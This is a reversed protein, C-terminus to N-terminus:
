APGATMRGLYEGDRFAWAAWYGAAGDSGQLFIWLRRGDPSLLVQVYPRPHIQGSVMCGCCCMQMQYLDNWATDPVAARKGGFSVSPPALETAPADRDIGLAPRGDILGEALRRTDHLRPDFPRTRLEAQWAHRPSRLTM